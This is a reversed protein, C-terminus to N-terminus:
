DLRSSKSVNRLEYRIYVTDPLFDIDNYPFRGWFLLLLLLQFSFKIKKKNGLIEVNTFEFSPM